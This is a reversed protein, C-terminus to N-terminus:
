LSYGGGSVNSAQEWDTDFDTMYDGTNSAAKTSKASKISASQAANSGLIGGLNMASDGLGAMARMWPEPQADMQSKLNQVNWQSTKNWQSVGIRQQPSMFVSSFDFMPAKTLGAMTQLYGPTQAQANQQVQYQRLGLNRASFAAGAPSGGIGQGLAAAASSRQTAALDSGTLEGRLQAALNSALTGTLDSYGPVGEKLSKAVQDRMFDNYSTALGKAADFTAENGKATDIQEQTIDIQPADAVSYKTPTILDSFFSFGM